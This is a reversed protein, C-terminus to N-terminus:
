QGRRQLAMGIVIGALAPALGLWLLDSAVQVPVPFLFTLWMQGVLIVVLGRALVDGSSALRGFGAVAPLLFVLRYDWNTGALYATVFVGIPIAVLAAARGDDALRRFMMQM